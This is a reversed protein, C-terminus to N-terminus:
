ERTKGIRTLMILFGMAGRFGLCSYRDKIPVAPVAAIHVSVPFKPSVPDVLGGGAVGAGGGRRSAGGVEVAADRVRVSAADSDLVPVFCGV